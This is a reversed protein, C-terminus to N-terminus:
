REDGGRKGLVQEAESLIMDALQEAILRNGKPTCHGFNGAFSDSFYENYDGERLAEVFNKRNELFVIESEAPFINKLPGIDRLPYQMIILRIGRKLILASIKRYNDATEPLYKEQEGRVANGRQFTIRAKEQEGTLSYLQALQEYLFYDDPYEEVAEKLATEAEQYFGHEMLWQGITGDLKFLPPDKLFVKWYFDKAVDTRGLAEYCKGLEMMALVSDASILVARHLLPLAEACRDQESFCRALEVFAGYNNIDLQVARRLHAEAEDYHQHMRNYWGLHVRLYSEMIKLRQLRQLLVLREAASRNGALQQEAASILVEFRQVRERVIESTRADSVPRESDPEPGGEVVEQPPPAESRWERITAAGHLMIYRFLKYVRLQSFVARIGKEDQKKERLVVPDNIGIMAIVAHPQYARLDGPLRALIDASTKSVLGKNILKFSVDPRREKLIQQLQAPYSNEGGLATTSEGICLIRYEEGSFTARNSSEQRFSFLLGGGRLLGELIVVSLVVGGMVLLLKQYLPTVNTASFKQRPPM